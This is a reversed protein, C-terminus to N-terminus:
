RARRRGPSSGSRASPRPRGRRAPRARSATSRRARGTPTTPTPRALGEYYSTSPEVASPSLARARRLENAARRVRLRLLVLGRYLHYQPDNESTPAAADLARAGAYDGM